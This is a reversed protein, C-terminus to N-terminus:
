CHFLKMLNTVLLKFGNTCAFSSNFIPDYYVSWMQVIYWMLEGNVGLTLTDIPYAENEGNFSFTRPDIAFYNDWKKTTLLGAKELDTITQSYDIVQYKTANFPELFQTTMPYEVFTFTVSKSARILMILEKTSIPNNSGLTQSLLIGDHYELTFELNSHIHICEINRSIKFFNELQQPYVGGLKKLTIDYKTVTAM